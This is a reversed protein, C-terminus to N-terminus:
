SVAKMLLGLVSLFYSMGTVQLAKFLTRMVILNLDKHQGKPGHKYLGSLAVSEFGAPTAVEQEFRLARM